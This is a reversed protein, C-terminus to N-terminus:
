NNYDNHDKDKKDKKKDKDKVKDVVHVEGNSAQIVEKDGKEKNNDRENGRETETTRQQDRQMNAHEDEGNKIHADVFEELEDPNSRLENVDGDMKEFAEDTPAIVTVNDGNRLTEVMDADELLSAFITHEDSSQIVDVVDQNQTNQQTPYDQAMINTSAFAMVVLAVLGTYIKQINKM